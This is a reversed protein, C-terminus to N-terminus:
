ANAIPMMITFASGKGPTSEAKVKGGHADVMAKVYSLGLGFGKVNHINGTHARYFKEFVRAVTEKNMGIGSDQVKIALMGNVLLTEVEIHLHETSYKIANDLLNFIINSFHVEDADVLYKQANLKLELTGNKEQIQLTLNDAVKHIVEHADLRQINLKIDQREIRAAQLIKEVQKNMRRNEDKIMGSYYKIKGTDHIVKDNTLADIALSITALPTKLEHTMNNIFDSKIESLKKQTFMTRITLSFASIIITTFIISAAIMWGMKSIIYNKNERIYLHLKQPQQADEPTLMIERAEGYYEPQFGDSSLIPYKFINSISFEFPQKINNKSLTNVVIKEIEDKTFYQATFENKLLWNASEPDIYGFNNKKERIFTEQIQEKIEKESKILAEKYQDRKVIIANWIWSMQIFVIGIVSLTILFIILPFVKKM